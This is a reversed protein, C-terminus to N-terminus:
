VQFEFDDLGLNNDDITSATFQAILTLGGAGTGNQDFWLLQADDEYIFQANAGTATATNSNRIENFDFSNGLGFESLDIFIKDTGEDFQNLTDYGQGFQLWARTHGYDMRLTDNGADGRITGADDGTTYSAGYITDNGAGGFAMGGDGAQLTDAYASGILNNMNVFTDGLAYGTATNNVFYVTLASTANSYDATDTGQGGMFQDAGLGGEMMDNGKAGYLIDNGDDGFLFDDGAGGYILDNGASGYLWDNGRRGYIEDDGISGIITNNNKDGEYYAM